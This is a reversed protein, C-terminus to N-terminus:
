KKLFRKAFFANDAEKCLHQMGSKKKIIYVNYKITYSVPHNM